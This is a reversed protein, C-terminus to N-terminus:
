TPPSGACRGCSCTSAARFLGPDRHHRLHAAVAAPHQLSFRLMATRLPKEDLVIEVFEGGMPAPGVVRMVEDDKCFLTDFADIIARYWRVDRM